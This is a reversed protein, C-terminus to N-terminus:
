VSVKPNLANGLSNNAIIDTSIKRILKDRDERTKHDSSIIDETIKMTKEKLKETRYLVIRDSDISNDM